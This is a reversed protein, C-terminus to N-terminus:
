NTVFFTFSILRNARPISGRESQRAEDILRFMFQFSWSNQLNHM